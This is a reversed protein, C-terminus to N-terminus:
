LDAAPAPHMRQAESSVRRAALVWTGRSGATIYRMRGHFKSAILRTRRQAPSLLMKGMCDKRPSLACLRVPRESTNETAGQENTTFCNWKDQGNKHHSFACASGISIGQPKDFEIAHNFFFCASAKQGPAFSTRGFTYLAGGCSCPLKQM